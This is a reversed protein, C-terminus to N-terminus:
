KTFGRLILEVKVIKLNEYGLEVLQKFRAKAEAQNLFRAVKKHNPDKSWQPVKGGAYSGCYYLVNGNKDQNKIILLKM